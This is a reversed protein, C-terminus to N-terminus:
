EASRDLQVRFERGPREGAEARLFAQHRERVLSIRQQLPQLARIGRRVTRIRQDLSPKNM